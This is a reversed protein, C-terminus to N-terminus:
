LCCWSRRIVVAWINIYSIGWNYSSSLSNSLSSGYKIGVNSRYLKKSGNTDIVCYDCQSNFDHFMDITATVTSFRASGSSFGSFTFRWLQFQLRLIAYTPLYNRTLLSSGILKLYNSVLIAYAITLTFTSFRLLSKDAFRATILSIGFGQMFLGISGIYSLVMGTQDAALGFQEIAIVTTLSYLLLLIVKFM